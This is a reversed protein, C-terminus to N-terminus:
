DEDEDELFPSIRYYLCPKGDGYPQDGYYCIVEGKITDSNPSMWDNFYGIVEYWTKVWGEHTIRENTEDNVNVWKLFWSM